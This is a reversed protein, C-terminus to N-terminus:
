GEKKRKDQRIEVKKIKGRMSNKKGEQKKGSMRDETREGNM